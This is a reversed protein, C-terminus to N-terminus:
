CFTFNTAEKTSCAKSIQRWRSYKHIEDLLLFGPDTPFLKKIFNERDEAADWNMYRTKLDFGAQDCLHKALTTKGSQRPGGVFVMKRQLDENTSPELYRTIYKAM